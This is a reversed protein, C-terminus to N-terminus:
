ALPNPASSSAPHRTVLQNQIIPPGNGKLEFAETTRQDQKGSSVREVLFVMPFFSFRM